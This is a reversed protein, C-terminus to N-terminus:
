SGLSLRLSIEQHHFSLLVYKRGAHRSRGHKGAMLRLVTASSDKRALAISERLADGYRQYNYLLRTYQLHAYIHEPNLEMVKRYYGLAENFKSLQRCCEAAEVLAQQNEPLEIIIHQLTSLAEATRGLGKLAKAKQILLQPSASEEDILRIVTKYDYNAMAEQVSATNQARLMVSFGLYLLLIWHKM